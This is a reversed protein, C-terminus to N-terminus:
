AFRNKLRRIAKLLKERFYQPLFNSTLVTTEIKKSFHWACRKEGFKIYEKGDEFFLIVSIISGPNLPYHCEHDIKFIDVTENVNRSDSRLLTTQGFVYWASFWLHSATIFIFIFSKM